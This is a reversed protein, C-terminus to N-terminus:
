YLHCAVTHQKSDNRLTPNLQSCMPRVLPCHAQFRCGRPLNLLDPPPTPRDAIQQRKGNIKPFSNLWSQTYPHLPRALLEQAPATEVIQGAYLVAIHTAFEAVLLLDRTTFLISLELQQKLRELQRLIEKQAVVDLAAAPEDLIVLPPTLALAIAIVARRRASGTLQYPFSKLHQPEIDLLSLLGAARERAAARDIPQHAVIADVIQDGITMIPNLAEAASQPVLSISRWRFDELERYQMDLVDRDQFIIQGGTIIAPPRLVRLLAHVITSKGCGSEGALGLVEGQKLDFSVNNVVRLPGRDTMYEVCLQRVDLLADNV